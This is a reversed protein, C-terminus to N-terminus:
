HDCLKNNMQRKLSFAMNELVARANILGEGSMHRNFDELYSNSICESTQTCHYPLLRQFSLLGLLRVSTQEMTEDGWFGKM